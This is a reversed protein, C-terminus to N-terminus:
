SHCGEKELISSLSAMFQIRQRYDFPRVDSTGDKNIVVLTGQPVGLIRSIVSKDGRLDLVAGRKRSRLWTDVIRKTIADVPVAVDVSVPDLFNLPQLEGVAQGQLTTSPSIKEYPLTDAEERDVHLEININM